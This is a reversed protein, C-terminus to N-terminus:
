SCVYLYGECNERDTYRLIESILIVLEGVYRGPIYATQDQAVLKSIVKKLRTALVKSLIKTDVNLLSIPRWSKIYIANIKVAKRRHPYDGSTKSVIVIRRSQSLPQSVSQIFGNEIINCFQIHFERMLGDNGPSNDESM